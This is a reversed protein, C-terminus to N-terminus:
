YSPPLTLSPTQKPHSNFGHYAVGAGAAILAWLVWTGIMRARRRMIAGRTQPSFRIGRAQCQRCIYEGFRNRHCDKREVSQACTACQRIRGQEDNRPDPLDVGRSKRPRNAREDRGM